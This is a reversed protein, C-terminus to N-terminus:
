KGSSGVLRDMLRNETNNQKLIGICQLIWFYKTKINAAGRERPKIQSTRPM